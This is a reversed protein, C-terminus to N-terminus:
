CMNITITIGSNIMSTHFMRQPNLPHSNPDSRFLLTNKELEFVLMKSSDFTSIRLATM